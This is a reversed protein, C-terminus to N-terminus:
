SQGAKGGWLAWNVRELDVAGEINGVLLLRGIIDEVNQGRPQQVQLSLLKLSAPPLTPRFGLYFSHKRAQHGQHVSASPAERATIPSPPPPLPPTLTSGAKLYRCDVRQHNMLHFPFCTHETLIDGHSIEHLDPKAM